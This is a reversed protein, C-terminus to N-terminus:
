RRGRATGKQATITPPQPLGPRVQTGARRVAEASLRQRLQEPSAFGGAPDDAPRSGARPGKAFTGRLYGILAAALVLLLFLGTVRIM